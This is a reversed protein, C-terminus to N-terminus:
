GVAHREAAPVVHLAARRGVTVLLRGALRTAPALSAPERLAHELGAELDIMPYGGEVLSAGIRVWRAADPEGRVALVRACRRAAAPRAAVLEVIARRVTAERDHSWDPPAIGDLLGPLRRLILSRTAPRLWALTTAASAVDIRLADAADRARVVAILGDELVDLWADLDATDGAATRRAVGEGIAAFLLPADHRSRAADLLAPALM